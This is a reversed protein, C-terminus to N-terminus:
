KEMCNRCRTAAPDITLRAREIPEDCLFCFGYEGATIRSLASDIKLLQQKRRRATEQALQQDQMAEMRSLRGVKSQDLTVTDSAERNTEELSLIEDKLSELAKQFDALQHKDM